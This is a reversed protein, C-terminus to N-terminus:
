ELVLAHLFSSGFAHEDGRFSGVLLFFRSPNRIPKEGAMALSVMESVLTIEQKMSALLFSLQVVSPSEELLGCVM